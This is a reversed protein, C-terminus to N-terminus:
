AAFTSTQARSYSPASTTSVVRQVKTLFRVSVPFLSFMSKPVAFLLKDPLHSVLDM